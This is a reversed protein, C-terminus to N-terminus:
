TEVVSLVAPPQRDRELWVAAIGVQHALLSLAAIEDEIYPTRDPKPGCCLFGIVDGRLTMPLFLMHHRADSEDDIEFAEQWRRLRLAV